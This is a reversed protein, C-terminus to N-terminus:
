LTLHSLSPAGQGFFRRFKRRKEVHNENTMRLRPSELFFMYIYIYIRAVLAAFRKEGCGVRVAVVVGPVCISRCRKCSKAAGLTRASVVFVGSLGPRCVGGVLQSSWAGLLDLPIGASVSVVTDRNLM